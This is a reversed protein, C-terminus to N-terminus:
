ASSRLHNSTGGDSRDLVAERGAAWGGSPINYPILQNAKFLFAFLNRREPFLVAQQFVRLMVRAAPAIGQKPYM